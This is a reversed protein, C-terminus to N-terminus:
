ESLPFSKPNVGLKRSQHNTEPVQIDVDMAVVLRVLEVVSGAQLKSMLNARHAEITKLTVDLELAIQKNLRGEMIRSLVIRERDSLTDLRALVEHRHQFHDLQRACLELARPIAGALQADSFSDEIVDMAGARVAQVALKVDGGTTVAIVPLPTTNQSMSQLLHMPGSEAVRVDVMLCWARKELKARLFELASCMAVPQWGCQQTAEILRLRLAADPSIVVVVGENMAIGVREGQHRLADM